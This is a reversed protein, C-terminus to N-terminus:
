GSCVDDEWACVVDPHIIKVVGYNRAIPDCVQIRPFEQTERVKVRKLLTKKEDNTLVQHERVLVHEKINFM